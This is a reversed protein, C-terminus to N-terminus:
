DPSAGGLHDTRGAIVMAQHQKGLLDLQFQWKSDPPHEAVTPHPVHTAQMHGCITSWFGLWSKYIWIPTM